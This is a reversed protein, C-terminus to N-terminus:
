SMEETQNAHMVNLHHTDAKDAAWPVSIFEILVSSVCKLADLSLPTLTVSQPIDILLVICYQIRALVGLSVAEAIM